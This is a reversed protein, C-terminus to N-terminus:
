LRQISYRREPKWLADYEKEYPSPANDKWLRIKRMSGYVGIGEGIFKNKLADSEALPYRFSINSFRITEMKGGWLYGNSDAYGCSNYICWPDFREM